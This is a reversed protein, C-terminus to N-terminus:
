RYFLGESFASRTVVIRVLLLDGAMREVGSIIKKAAIYM